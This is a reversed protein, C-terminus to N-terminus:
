KDKHIFLLPQKTTNKSVFPMIYFFMCVKVSLGLIVSKDPVQTNHCVWIYM